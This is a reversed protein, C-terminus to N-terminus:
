HPPFVYIDAELDGLIDQIMQSVRKWDLGGNSCGLAPLAVSVKGCEKLYWYLEWLGAFIDVYESNNRWHKKTPFNIIWASDLGNGQQRTWIHLKGLKVEGRKCATKYAKFMDPYRNKFELAIGKGMVGVCNVTNVRIDVPLDFFNGLTFHIM